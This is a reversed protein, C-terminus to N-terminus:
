AADDFRNHGAYMEELVAKELPMRKYPAAPKKTKKGSLYPNPAAAKPPKLTPPCPKYMTLLTGNRVVCLMDTGEITHKGDTNPIRAAIEQRVRGVDLEHFREMYRVIAHDTITM